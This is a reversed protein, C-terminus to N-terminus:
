GTGPSRILDPTAEVGSVGEAVEVIPLGRGSRLVRRAAAYVPPEDLGYLRCKPANRALAQPELSKQVRNSASHPM